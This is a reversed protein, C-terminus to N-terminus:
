LNVFAEQSRAARALLPNLKPLLALCRSLIRWAMPCRSDRDRVNNGFMACRNAGLSQLHELHPSVSCPPEQFVTPTKIHIRFSNGLIWNTMTVFSVGTARSRPPRMSERFEHKGDSLRGFM